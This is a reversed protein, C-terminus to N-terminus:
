SPRRPTAACWRATGISSRCVPAAAPRSLQRSARGSRTRRGEGCLRRGTPPLRPRAVGVAGRPPMPTRQAAHGFGPDSPRCIPTSWALGPADRYTAKERGSRCGRPQRSREFESRRACRRRNARPTPSHGPPRARWTREDRDRVTGCSRSILRAPRRSGSCVARSPQRSRARRLSRSVPVEQSRVPSLTGALGCRTQGVHVFVV